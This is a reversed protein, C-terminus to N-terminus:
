DANAQLRRHDEVRPTGQQLNNELQQAFCHFMGRVDSLERRRREAKERGARIMHEVKAERKWQMFAIILQRQIQLCAVKEGATTASTKSRCTFSDMKSAKASFANELEQEDEDPIAHRWSAFVERLIGKVLQSAVADLVFRGNEKQRKRAIELKVKAAKLEMEKERISCNVEVNQKLAAFGMQLLGSDVGSCMRALCQKANSRSTAAFNKMADDLYEGENRQSEKLKIHTEEAQFASLVTLMTSEAQVKSRRELVNRVNTLQNQKCDFMKKTIKDIEDQYERRVETERQQRKVHDLFAVFVCQLLSRDSGDALATIVLKCKERATNRFDTLAARAQALDKQVAMCVASTSLLPGMQNGTEGLWKDHMGEVSVIEQGAQSVAIKLLYPLVGVNEASELAEEVIDPGGNELGSRIRQTTSAIFSLQLFFHEFQEPTKQPMRSVLAEIAQAEDLNALWDPLDGQGAGEGIQVGHAEMLKVAASLSHSDKWLNALVRNMQRYHRPQIFFKLALKMAETVNSAAATQHCPQCPDTESDPMTADDLCAM